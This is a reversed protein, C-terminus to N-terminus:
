KYHYKLLSMGKAYCLSSIWQMENGLFRLLLSSSISISMSSPSHINPSIRDRSKKCVSLPFVANKRKFYLDPLSKISVKKCTVFFFM